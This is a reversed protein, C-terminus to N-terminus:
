KNLTKIFLDPTYEQKSEPTKEYCKICLGQPFLDIKETPTKCNNCPTKKYLDM